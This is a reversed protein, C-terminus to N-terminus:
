PLFTAKLEETAFTEVVEAAAQTLMPCLGFAMNSAHWIESVATAVLWPLGQGGHEESYQLTNWGGEVFQRYAERFGPATRVVGNEFVCGHRDGTENLPALVEGGFKGAEELIADILDPSAEECGPLARVSALDAVDYLVFRMDALPAAYVTM